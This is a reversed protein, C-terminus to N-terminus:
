RLVLGDLFTRLKHAAGARRRRPMLRYRRGPGQPRAKALYSPWDALCAAVLLDVCVEELRSSILDLTEDGRWRYPEIRLIPGTDIGPDVLHLTCGVTDFRQEDIAWLETDLGRYEPLVGPHANLTALAPITLVSRPVIGSDALLLLDPASARLAQMTEASRAYPAYDVREALLQYDRELPRGRWDTLRRSRRGSFGAGAYRLAELPGLQRIWRQLWRARTRWVANLVVVQAVLVGEWRLLNLLRFGYESGQFTLM